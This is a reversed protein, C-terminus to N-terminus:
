ERKLGEMMFNKFRVKGYTIKQLLIENEPVGVLVEKIHGNNLNDARSGPFRALLNALTFPVLM